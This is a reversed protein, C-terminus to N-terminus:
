AKETVEQEAARRPRSASSQSATGVKLHYRIRRFPLSIQVGGREWETFLRLSFSRFEPQLIAPCHFSLKRDVELMRLLLFMGKYHSSSFEMQKCETEEARRVQQLQFPERQADTKQFTPTEQLHSLTQHASELARLIYELSWSM